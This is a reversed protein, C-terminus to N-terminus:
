EVYKTSKLTIKKEPIWRYAHHTIAFRNEFHMNLLTYTYQTFRLTFVACDVYYIYLCIHIKICVCRDYALANHLWFFRELILFVKSYMEFGISKVKLALWKKIGTIKSKRFYLHFIRPVKAVEAYKVTFVCTFIMCHWQSSSTYSLYSLSFM